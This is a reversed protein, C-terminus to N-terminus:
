HVSPRCEVEHTRPSWQVSQSADPLALRQRIVSSDLLWQLQEAQCLMILNDLGNPMSARLFSIYLYMYVNVNSGSATFVLM